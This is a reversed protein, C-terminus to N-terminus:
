PLNPCIDFLIVHGVEYRCPSYPSIKYPDPDLSPIMPMPANLATSCAMYKAYLVACIAAQTSDAPPVVVCSVFLVHGVSQCSILLAENAVVDTSIAYSRTIACLTILKKLINLKYV